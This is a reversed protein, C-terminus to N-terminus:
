ENQGLFSPQGLEGKNNNMKDWSPHSALNVKIIIRETV